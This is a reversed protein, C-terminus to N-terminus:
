RLREAFSTASDSSVADLRALFRRFDKHVREGIGGSRLHFDTIRTTAFRAAAARAQFRFAGWEADTLRRESDYGGVMARALEWEFADGYCWALMTVALDYVLVGDAASEWDILAVISDGEFRVNDRFLDGHTVTRPLDQPEDRDLEDLVARLRAIPEVLEPRDHSAASDLRGRLDSRRFRGERRWGFDTVARHTRGLARGVEAAAATTVERQRLEHGHVLEFLATPKDGIRVAGPLTGRVRVPVPVSSAELHDLLAWEYAVGSADQEEYVRLFRKGFGGLAFYNTNVSGAAIPELSTTPGLGHAETVRTADALNLETFVAM